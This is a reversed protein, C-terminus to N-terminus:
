SAMEIWGYIDSLQNLLDVARDLDVQLPQQRTLTVNMMTPPQDTDNPDVNILNEPPTGTRTTKDPSPEASDSSGYDTILGLPSM